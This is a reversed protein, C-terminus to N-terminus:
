RLKRQRNRSEDIESGRVKAKGFRNLWQKGLMALFAALLSIGLSTYLVTQCTVIDHNPGDWAQFPRKAVSRPVM